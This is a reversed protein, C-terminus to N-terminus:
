FPQSGLKIGFEKIFPEPDQFSSAIKFEKETLERRAM